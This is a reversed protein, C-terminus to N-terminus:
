TRSDTTQINYDKQAATKNKRQIKKILNKRQPKSAIGLGQV